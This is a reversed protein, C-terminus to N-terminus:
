DNDIEYDTDTTGYNSRGESHLKYNVFNGLRQMLDTFLSTPSELVPLVTELQAIDSWLFPNQVIDDLKIVNNNEDIFYYYGSPVVNNVDMRLGDIILRVIVSRIERKGPVEVTFETKTKLKLM